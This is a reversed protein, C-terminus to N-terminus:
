FHLDNNVSHLFPLIVICYLKNGLSLSHLIMWQSQNILSLEIQHRMHFVNWWIFSHLLQHFCCDIPKRKMKSRLILQSFMKKQHISNAYYFYFNSLLMLRCYEHVGSINSMCQRWYCMEFMNSTKEWVIHSEKPKM